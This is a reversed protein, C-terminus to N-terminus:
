RMGAASSCPLHRAFQRADSSGGVPQGSIGNFTMIEHRHWVAALRSHHASVVFAIRHLSVTVGFDDGSQPRGRGGRLRDFVQKDSAGIHEPEVEAVAGVGIVLRAVVGDAVDLALQMPRDGHQGVKLTGLQADAVDFAALNAQVIAIGKAEVQRRFQAVLHPRRQGMRFHEGSEPHSGFQQDVVAADAQQDLTVAGIEGLGADQDAALQRVVLTDVNGARHQRDRGQRGLIQDVEVEGDVHTDIPDGEAEDLAGGVDLLGTAQDGGLDAVPHAQQGLQFLRRRDLMEVVDDLQGVGDHHGTAVEADFARGLHNRDQLLTDDVGAAGGTLRHHDGSLHQFGHDVGRRRGAGLGGVDSGGNIVPGVRHHKRRFGGRALEREFRHGDHVADDDLHLAVLMVADDGVGRAEQGLVVGAVGDGRRGALHGM